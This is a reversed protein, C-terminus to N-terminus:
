PRLLLESHRDGQKASETVAPVLLFVFTPMIAKMKSRYSKQSQM